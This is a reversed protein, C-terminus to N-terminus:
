AAEKLAKTKNKPQEYTTFGTMDLQETLFDHFADIGGDAIEGAVATYVSPPLASSPELVMFRRDSDGDRLANGAGCMFIFNMKNLEVTPVRAKREIIIEDSTLAHKLLMRDILGPGIDDTLVLRANAMWGNFTDGWKSTANVAAHSYMPAIVQNFFLSKGSGQVGDVLLATAMKAGKDRLPYALWRLVWLARDRDGECLHLLLANINPTSAPGLAPTSAVSKFAGVIAGRLRNLPLRLTSFINM